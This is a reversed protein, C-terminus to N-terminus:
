PRPARLNLQQAPRQAVVAMVLQSAADAPAGQGALFAKLKGEADLLQRCQGLAYSVAERNPHKAPLMALYRRFAQQAERFDGQQLSAHGLTLHALAEKPDLDIARRCCAIAEGAKGKILLTAGLS